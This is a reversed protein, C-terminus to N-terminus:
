FVEVLRKGRYVKRTARMDAQKGTITNCVTVAKFMDVGIRKYATPNGIDTLYFLHGDPIDELTTEILEM